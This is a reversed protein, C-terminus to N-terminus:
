EKFKITISEIDNSPKWAGNKLKTIYLVGSAGTLFEFPFVVTKAHTKKDDLVSIESPVQIVWDKSQPNKM